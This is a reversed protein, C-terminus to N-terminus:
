LCQSGFRQGDNDEMEGGWNKKKASTVQQKLSRLRLKEYRRFSCDSAETVSQM